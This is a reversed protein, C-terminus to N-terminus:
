GAAEAQELVLALKATEGGVFRFGVRVGGSAERVWCVVGRLCPGSLGPGLRMLYLTGVRPPTGSWCLGCGGASVSVTNMYTAGSELIVIAPWKVRHRPPRVRPMEAGDALHELVHRVIWRQDEDVEMETALTEGRPRKGSVTGTVQIPSQGLGSLKLAVRRGVEVPATATWVLRDDSSAAARLATTDISVKEIRARPKHASRPARGSIEAPDSPDRSRVGNKGFLSLLAM